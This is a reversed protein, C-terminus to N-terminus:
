GLRVVTVHVIPNDCQQWVQIVAEVKELATCLKSVEQRTIATHEEWDKVCVSLLSEQERVQSALAAEAGGGPLGRGILSDSLAQM